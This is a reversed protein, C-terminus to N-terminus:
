PVGQAHYCTKGDEYRTDLAIRGDFQKTTSCRVKGTKGKWVIVAIPNEPTPHVKVKSYSMRRCRDLTEGVLIRASTTMCVHTPTTM